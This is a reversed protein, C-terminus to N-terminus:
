ASIPNQNEPAGFAQPNLNHRLLCTPAKKCPVQEKCLYGQNKSKAISTQKTLDAIWEVATAYEEFLRMEGDYFGQEKPFIGQTRLNTDVVAIGKLNPWRDLQRYVHPNISYSNERLSIYGFEKNRFHTDIVAEYYELVGSDILTGYKMKGVVCHEYVNLTGFELEYCALM